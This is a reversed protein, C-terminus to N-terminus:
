ARDQRRRWGLGLALVLWGLGLGVGGAGAASSCDGCVRKPPLDDTDADTDDPPDTEDETDFPGTDDPGEVEAWDLRWVVASDVIGQGSAVSVDLTHWRDDLDRIQWVVARDEASGDLSVTGQDEGDLVIRLSGGGSSTASYLDLGVGRFDLQAAAGEIDSVQRTDNIAAPVSEQAWGPDFSWLPSFDTILELAHASSWTEGFDDSFWTGDFGGIAIAGDDAYSPSLAVTMSPDRTPAQLVQFSDGGDTSRHWGAQPELVFVEQGETWTPAVAVDWVTQGAFGLLDPQAGGSARYLGVHTALFLAGGGPAGALGWVPHGMSFQEQWTAGHDATSWVEGNEGCAVWALGDADFDDSIHITSCFNAEERPGNCTWSTGGDSSTCWGGGVEINGAAMITPRASFDPAVALDWFDGMEAEAVRDWSVDADESRMLWTLLYYFAVRDRGYDASTAVRKFFPEALDFGLPEAARALPDSLYGGGGFASAMAAPNGAADYTLAVDRVAEPLYTEVHQWSRGSDESKILGEWSALWIHGRGDQRLEYYHVGSAPQGPSADEIADANKTFSAGGDDSVFVAEDDYCFMVLDGPFEAVTVVRKQDYGVFVFSEGDDDSRWLGQSDTALWVRSGSGPAIEFVAGPVSGVPEWSAGADGSRFVDGDRSLVFARGDIGFLPSLKLDWPIVDPLTAVQAFSDGGDISRWIAGEQGGELDVFGTALAIHDMLIDPSAVVQQITADPDIDPHPALSDGADDSVLLGAGLTGLALREASLMAAGAIGEDDDFAYRLEMDQENDTRVLLQTSRVAIPLSTMVWAPETGPSYAVWFAPDHPVHASAPASALLLLASLWPSPRM